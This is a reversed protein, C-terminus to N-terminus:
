VFINGNGKNRPPSLFHHIYLLLNTEDVSISKLFAFDLKALLKLSPTNDPMVVAYIKEMTATDALRKLLASAAEFAFGKNFHAPLFAFGIDHTDLYNRKVLTLIGAKNSNDTSVLWYHATPSQLIKEAYTQAEKVSHINKQGIYKIWDPTNVLEFLFEADQYLLPRVSLRATTFRISSLM